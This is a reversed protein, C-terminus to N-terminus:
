KLANVIININNRYAGILGAGNYSAGNATKDALSDTYLEGGIKVEEGKAKVDEQIALIDKKPVSSETFIAKVKNEIVYDGLNRVKDIGAECTTNGVYVSIIDVGYNRKLYNLSDHTTVFKRNEKPIIEINTKIYEDLRDLEELYKKLKEDYVKENKFDLQRLKDTVVTASEKWLDIDFWIHPDYQNDGLKILKDKSILDGIEIVVNKGNTHKAIIDGLGQELNLGNYIIMDSEKISEIDEDKFKYLHPDIGPTMIEKVEIKDGSLNSVLDSLMPTTTIVKYKKEKEVKNKEINTQITDADAKECGSIFAISFICTLLLVIISKKM